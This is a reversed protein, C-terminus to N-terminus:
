STLDGGRSRRIEGPAWRFTTAVNDQSGTPRKAVIVEALGRDDHNPGITCRRGSCCCSSTRTTSSRRPVACTQCNRVGAQGDNPPGRAVMSTAVVPCQMENALQRSPGHPTGRSRRRLLPMRRRRSDRTALGRRDDETRRDRPSGAPRAPEPRQGHTSQGGPLSTEQRAEGHRCRAEGMRVMASREESPEPRHSRAIRVPPLGGQGHIRRPRFLPRAEPGTYRGPDCARRHQHAPHVKGMAPRGGIVVLEAPQFGGIAADLERFGTRVGTPQGRGEGAQRELREKVGLAADAVHRPRDPPRQRRRLAAIKREAEDLLPGVAKEQQRLGVEM